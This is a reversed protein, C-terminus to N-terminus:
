DIHGDAIAMSYYINEHPYYMFYIEEGVWVKDGSVAGAQELATTTGTAELIRQFREVAEYYKWNTMETALQIKTGYVRWERTGVREVRIPEEQRRYCEVVSQGTSSQSFNEVRKELTDLLLFTKRLLLQINEGTAASISMIRCHGSRDKLKRELELAQNSVHALDIKNLVIVEPKDVLSPNFLALEQRIAEYDGVPDPSDGNVVHVLLRCREVHRLFAVGLGVGKHAGELLGPIDAVVFNDGSDLEVVGLNPVITTFPYDAIKPKANTCRALLTSKGANPVGVLGVDAVLKLELQISRSEGKAGKEAFFPAKNRETKFAYNGRGGQGGKCVLVESGAKNLDALVQGTKGDKVITGVPVVLKLDKGSKGHCNKGLGNKGTSAEFHVHSRFRALTKDGASAVLFVHGGRGGNGGAPGGRPVSKERRFAVCGNGGSGGKVFIRCRDLFRWELDNTELKDEEVIGDRSLLSDPLEERFFLQPQTKNETFSARPCCVFHLRQESDLHKSVYRHKQLLTRSRIEKLKHTCTKLVVIPFVFLM